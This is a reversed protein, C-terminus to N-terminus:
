RGKHTYGRSFLLFSQIPLSQPWAWLFLHHTCPLDTFCVLLFILSCNQSHYGTTFGRLVEEKLGLVQFYVFSMSAKCYLLGWTMALTM